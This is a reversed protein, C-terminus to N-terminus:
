DAGPGPQKGAGAGAGIPDGAPLELAPGPVTRETRQEWRHIDAAVTTQHASRTAAPRAEIRRALKTLRDSLVARVEASNDARMAMTMMQDV